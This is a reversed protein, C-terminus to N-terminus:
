KSEAYILEGAEVIEYSTLESFIESTDKWKSLENNIEIPIFIKDFLKNLIFLCGAKYLSVFICTDSVALTKM